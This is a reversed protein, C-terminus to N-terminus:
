KRGNRAKEKKSEGGKSGRREKREGSERAERFEKKFCYGGKYLKQIYLKQLKEYELGSLVIESDTNIEILEQKLLTAENIFEKEETVEDFTQLDNSLQLETIRKSLICSNRRLKTYEAMGIGVHDIKPMSKIVKEGTNHYTKNDILAINRKLREGM